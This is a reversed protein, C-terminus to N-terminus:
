QPRNALGFPRTNAFGAHNREQPTLWPQDAAEAKRPEVTAPLLDSPDSTEIATLAVVMPMSESEAANRRSRM